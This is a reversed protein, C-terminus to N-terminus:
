KVVGNSIWGEQSGNELQVKFWEGDEGLLILKDGQKVNTVVPFENGAGSRINASTWNVTVISKSQPPAVPQPKAPLDVKGQTPTVPISTIPKEPPQPEPTKDPEPTKEPEPTKGPEPEKSKGEELTQVRLVKLDKDYFVKVTVDTGSAILEVPTGVVEWLGLTFVDALGHFIARGAKSGKSYGQKFKYLDCPCGDEEGSWVPQGLEARVVSQHIGEKLVTMDKKAPQNAAMYVSCSCIFFIAVLVFFLKTLKM